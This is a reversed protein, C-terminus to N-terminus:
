YVYELKSADKVEEPQDWSSEETERNYFYWRNHEGSHRLEYMSALLGNERMQDEVMKSLKALQGPQDMSHARLFRVALVEPDDGRHVNLVGNKGQGINVNIILDVSYKSTPPGPIDTPPANVPSHIYKRRVPTYTTEESQDTLSLRRPKSGSLTHLEHIRDRRLSQRRSPQYPTQTQFPSSTTRAQYSTNFSHNNESADMSAELDKRRFKMPSQSLKFPSFGLRSEALAKFYSDKTTQGLREYRLLLEERMVRAKHLRMQHKSESQSILLDEPYVVPDKSLISPSFSCEAMEKVLLTQEKKERELELKSLKKQHREYLRTHVPKSSRPQKQAKLSISPAFTCAELENAKTRQILAEEKHKRRGLDNEVRQNFADVDKKSLAKTPKEKKAQDRKRFGFVKNNQLCPLMVNDLNSPDALASMLFDEVHQVPVLVNMHPEAFSNEDM